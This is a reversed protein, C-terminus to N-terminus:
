PSMEELKFFTDSCLQAFCVAPLEPLQTRVDKDFSRGQLIGAVIGTRWIWGTPVSELQGDRGSEDKSRPPLELSCGILPGSIAAVDSAPIM